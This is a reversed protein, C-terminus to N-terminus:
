TIIDLKTFPPDNILNQPAFIAMERIEKRVFYTGNENTFYRELREPSVGARIGVPFRGQRAQEIAASDLDTGFIQYNFRLKLKEGCERMVIALTYVEEGTACGPVWARLTAGDGCLKMLESLPGSAFAEWSESDRFFSTVSILLEKFLLEIEKPNQELFRVYDAPQIIQHVNMRREIRRRITNAKYGSFDHGTYTRLLDYLRRMSESDIFISQQESGSSGSVWGARSFYPGSTYAILQSPMEAPTLVYDALGTAEASSPMGAFKASNSRQVMAMGAAGKITKLGETGDSGTGSLVICIAREKQDAALSQFFSDIPLRVPRAHDEIRQLTGHHITLCGGPTGVYIRNPQIDVGDTAPVVTM